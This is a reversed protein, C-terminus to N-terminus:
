HPHYFGIINIIHHICYLGAQQPPQPTLTSDLNAENLFHKNLSFIPSHTLICRSSCTVSTLHHVLTFALSLSAWILTFINRCLAYGTCLDQTSCSANYVCFSLMVLVCLLPPPQHTSLNSTLAPPCCQLAVITLLTQIKSLM